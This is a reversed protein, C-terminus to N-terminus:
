PLRILFRQEGMQFQGAGEIALRDIRLWTGNLSRNNEVFWRGRADRFIRAHKSSAMPDQAAVVRCQAPDSGLWVEDGEIPWRQGDGRARVEVLAPLGRGAVQPAEWTTTGASAAPLERVTEDAAPAAGPSEFRFRTNGVMIEQGPKLISKAVRAFTGNTSKLDNIYWRWTGGELQRVLEAHRSSMSDDHPITIDGDVRGVVARSARIRRWEGEERSGDDLVCVLLVPPRRTPRYPTGDASPKSAVPQAPRVGASLRLGAPMALHAPEQEGVTPPILGAARLIDDVSELKTPPEM